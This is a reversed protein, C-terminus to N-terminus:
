EPDFLAPSLAADAWKQQSSLSKRVATQVQDPTNRVYECASNLVVEAKRREEPTGLNVAEELERVYLVAEDVSFTRNNRNEEWNPRLGTWVAASLEPKGSLWTGIKGSIGDSVNRRIGDGQYVEGSSLLCHMPSKTPTGERKQLNEIAADLTKCRSLAWYTQVDASQEHIVLTLRGDRSIRAFEIPLSPGDRRWRSEIQLAGPHWILSGWGIISITM